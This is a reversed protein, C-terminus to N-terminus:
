KATAIHNLEVKLIGPPPSAQLADAVQRTWETDAATETRRELLIRCTQGLCEALTADFDDRGLAAAWGAPDLTAPDVTQVLLEGPVWRTSAIAPQATSAASESSSAARTACGCFALLLLAGSCAGLLRRTM